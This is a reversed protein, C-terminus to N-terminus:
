KKSLDVAVFAQLFLTKIPEFASKIFDFAHRGTSIAM